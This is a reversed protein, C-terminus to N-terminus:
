KHRKLKEIAMVPESARPELALPGATHIEAQSVYNFGQINLQQSFHNSWRALIRHSDTILGGKEDKVIDTSPQYCKKFDNNGRYLFINERGLKGNFDRLIFKM